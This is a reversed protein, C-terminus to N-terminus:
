VSGLASHVSRQHSSLASQNSSELSPISQNSKDGVKYGSEGSVGEWRKKKEMYLKVSTARLIKHIDRIRKCERSDPDPHRCLIIHPIDLPTDGSDKIRHFVMEPAVDCLYQVIQMYESHESFISISGNAPLSVRREVLLCIYEVAHHLVSYKDQDVIRASRGQDHDIILKVISATTGNLCALHLPTAGFADTRLTSAPDYQLMLEIIEIPAFSTVFLTLPSLGSSDLNRPLRKKIILRKM